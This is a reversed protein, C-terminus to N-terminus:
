QQGSVPQVDSQWLDVSRYTNPYSARLGNASPHAHPNTQGDAQTNRDPDAEEHAHAHSEGYDAAASEADPHTNASSIHTNRDAWPGRTEDSHSHTDRDTYWAQPDPYAHSTANGYSFYRHRRHRGAHPQAHSSLLLGNYGTDRYPHAHSWLLQCVRIPFRACYCMRRVHPVNQACQDANCGSSEHSGAHTGRAQSHRYASGACHMPCDGERMATWESLKRDSAYQPQM